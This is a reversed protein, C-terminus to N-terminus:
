FNQVPNVGGGRSFCGFGLMFFQRFLKSKPIFRVGPAGGDKQCHVFKLLYKGRVGERLTLCRNSSNPTNDLGCLADECGDIAPKTEKFLYDTRM